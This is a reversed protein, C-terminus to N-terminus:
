KITQEVCGRSFICHIVSFIRRLDQEIKERVVLRDLRVRLARDIFVIQIQAIEEAIHLTGSIGLEVLKREILDVDAVDIEREDARDAQRVDVVIQRVQAAVPQLVLITFNRVFSQARSGARALERGDARKEIIQAILPM